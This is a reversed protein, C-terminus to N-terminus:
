PPGERHPLGRWCKPAAAGIEKKCRYCIRRAEITGIEAELWGSVTMGESRLRKLLRDYLEGRISVSGRSARARARAAASRGSDRTM